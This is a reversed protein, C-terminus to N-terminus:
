GLVPDPAYLLPMDAGAELTEARYLSALQPNDSFPELTLVVVDDIAARTLPLVRGDLVAWHVVRIRRAALEGELVELVDYEYVVLGERYPSIEDLTPARSRARLRARVTVVAVESRSAMKARYREYNERVEESALVRNYIAVGELTGQWDGGGGWEGGFVLPYTKWHFFDGQVSDSELIREGNLYAVLRGPSYTVM